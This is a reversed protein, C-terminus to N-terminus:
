RTLLVTGTLTRQKGDSTQVIAKYTYAGLPAEKGRHTGDWGRELNDSTFILEGWRNYIWLTAKEVFKGLVKFEDNMGDGNPSFANPFYAHMVLEFRYVNSFSPRLGGEAPLAMVRFQRGNDAETFPPFGEYYTDTGASWENLVSGTADVEQLVYAQVGQAYGQYATWGPEFGDPEGSRNSLYLPCFPAAESARNGCADAYSLRYCGAAPIATYLLSDGTLGAMLQTGVNNQLFYTLGSIGPGPQPVVVLQGIAWYSAINALPPLPTSRRAVVCLPSSTSSATSGQPLLRLQYCYTQGCILNSDEFTGASTSSSALLSGDQRLLQIEGAFSPLTSYEIVNVGEGAQVSFAATCLVESLTSGASNCDDLARIRYCRYAGALGAQQFLTDTAGARLPFLPEYSGSSSSYGELQYRLQPDLSFRLQVSDQDPNWGLSTFLPQPLSTRATISASATGCPNTTPADEYRGRVTVTQAGAAAYQGSARYNTSADARVPPATGFQVEYYDYHRDLIHVSAGLNSCAYVSFEPPDPPFVEVELEDRPDQDPGLEAVQQIIFASAEPITITTTGGSTGPYEGYFVRGEKYFLLYTIIAETNDSLALTLPACGRTYDVTFRGKPSLTQAEAVSAHLLLLLVIYFPYYRL